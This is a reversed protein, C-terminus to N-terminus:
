ARAKINALQHTVDARGPSTQQLNYRYATRGAQQQAHAKINALQHTVDAFGPSTQQLDYRHATKGPRPKSLFEALKNSHM